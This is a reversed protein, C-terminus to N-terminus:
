DPLEGELRAVAAGSDLLAAGLLLPLSVGKLLRQLPLWLAASSAGAEATAGTASMAGAGDRAEPGASEGAPLGPLSPLGLLTMAQRLLGPESRPFIPLAVEEDEGLGARRRAEAVAANLGGLEDCLRAAVARGGAFVRGGAAAEVQARTLHRGSQVVSVFRDYGAQLQAQVLAREADSYPRFIGESDAHLGRASQFQSVGVRRALESLDVKGGFIGISGTISGPSVYLRDCPAALYYGGSAAVDGFSCVVPLRLRLRSVERAILDAGEASGGPSEVRLVLARVGPAAAAQQLARLASRLGLVKLDLLPVRLSDGPLLDGELNVIAVAAPTYSRGRREREEGSGAPPAPLPLVQPRASLVEGLAAEVQDETAVQDVLGAELAARPSFIGRDILAASARDRESAETVYRARDALVEPRRAPRRRESVAQVLLGYLDEALAQRQARAPESPGSRLFTEPTSKYEGVRLIEARVGLHDLAEKVFYSSQAVGTVRLGGAPDLFLREAASAIFYGKTGLSSAYAFVRKGSRRVRLLAERLEVARGWGVRVEGGLLIVGRARPDREVRQLALLLRLFDAGTLDGPVVRYLADRAGEWVAPYRESSVRLAVSGGGGGLGAGRAGEVVGYASAGFRSLDVQLGLSARFALPRGGELQLQGDAGIALGARPRLLLRARPLVDGRQEGVQVGLALELADSGSPRTLLELEYSRQLASGDRLTPASLDRLVLGLALHRATRVRLGLDVTDMGAAPADPSAFLHSYTLGLALSPLLRASLALALRGSLPGSLARAEAGTPRLLELALGAQLFDLYPLPAALYVGSGRGFSSGDTLETHRLGLSLGRLGGLSAPNLTVAFPEAGDASGAGPHLVGRTPADLVRVVQARAPSLPLSLLTLALAPLLTRPSRGARPRLPGRSPRTAM